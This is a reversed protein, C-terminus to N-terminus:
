RSSRTVTFPQLQSQTTSPLSITPLNTTSQASNTGQLNTSTTTQTNTTTAAAASGLSFGAWGGITALVSLTAILLKIGGLNGNNKTKPTNSKIPTSM